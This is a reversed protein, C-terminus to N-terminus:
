AKGNWIDDMHQIDVANPILGIESGVHWWWWGFRIRAWLYRAHRIVPWKKMNTNDKRTTLLYSANEFVLFMGCFNSRDFRKLSINKTGIMVAVAM